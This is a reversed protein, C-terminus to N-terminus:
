SRTRTRPSSTCRGTALARSRLMARSRRGGAGRSGRTASRRQRRAHPHAPGASADRSRASFTRLDGGVRRALRAWDDETGGLAEACAAADPDDGAARRRARLLAHLKNWELQYAVLTPISTTSTPARRSCSPRAHGRRRRVLAAAARAGRRPEWDEIGGMGARQFVEAEQGMVVRRAQWVDAPLRRMAYLFAGLDISTPPPWRQLSSDMARHSPELVRLLTEGSSRLLTTYTRHYLEVEDSVREALERLSRRQRPAPM